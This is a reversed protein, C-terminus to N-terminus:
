GAEAGEGRGERRDRRDRRDRRGVVWSGMCWATPQSQPQQRLNRAELGASASLPWSRRGFPLLAARLVERRSRLRAAVDQGGAEVRGGVEGM